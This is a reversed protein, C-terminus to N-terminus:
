NYSDLIAQALVTDINIHGYWYDEGFADYSAHVFRIAVSNTDGAVKQLALIYLMNDSYPIEELNSYKRIFDMFEGVSFTDSWDTERVKDTLYGVEIFNYFTHEEEVLILQNNSKRATAFSAVVIMKNGDKDDALYITNRQGSMDIEGLQIHEITPTL